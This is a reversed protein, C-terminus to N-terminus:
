LATEKAAEAPATRLRSYTALPNDVLLKPLLRRPFGNPLVDQADYHWHPYDTSFLLLDDCGIHELVRELAAADPPANAPQLTFRVHRRVLASPSENLWPVERRVGRWTKDARWLFGPLWTFGSEVLVVKLKPFKQFVGETILSLLVAQFLQAHGVYDEVFFSPWGVPTPAMRLGGGAHIAIPLDLREAAEYIPWYFRRGLPMENMALLQVDVLRSDDKRREIEAVALQPSQAPVVISARLRPERDLWERAILDNLARCVAAAMDESYFVQGTHVCRAIAARSGFADLAHCQLSALDSGPTKGPTRWDSRGMIPAGFPQSTLVLNLKDTGRNVLHDRWYDDMYPLLM